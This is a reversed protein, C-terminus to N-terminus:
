LAISQAAGGEWRLATRLFAAMGAAAGAHFRVRAPIGTPACHLTRPVLAVEEVGPCAALAAALDQNYLAIGGHGGYADTTLVLIRM